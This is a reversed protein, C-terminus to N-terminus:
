PNQAVLPLKLARRVVAVFDRPTLAAMDVARGVFFGRVNHELRAVATDRLAAELDVIVRQPKIARDHTFWVQRILQAPRDYVLSANLVGDAVKHSAACVPAESLPSQMLNTWDATDIEALASRYRAHETLSLDGDHFEAEFESEFAAILNGRILDADPSAGLLSKLDTVRERMAAFAPDAQAAVPTRMARWGDGADLDIQLIGQYLLADGDFTGGAAGIRRGDVEIDHRARFRADIGLAGVAAAAAHCIRKAIARMDGAGIDRRHLYLAWSLQDGDCYIADGGTIRRQITINRAICYNPDFEQVASQGYALLASPTYRSFRLTSPIEEAHRAELLARDLAINQAASRLGTDIVRWMEGM